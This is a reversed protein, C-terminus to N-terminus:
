IAGIGTFYIYYILLISVLPPKILTYFTRFRWSAPAEGRVGSCPSSVASAWSGIQDTPLLVEGGFFAMGEPGELKVRVGNGHVGVVNCVSQRRYTPRIYDVDSTHTM